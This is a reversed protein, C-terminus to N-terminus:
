LRGTGLSLLKVTERSAVSYAYLVAYVFVYQEAHDVCCKDKDM